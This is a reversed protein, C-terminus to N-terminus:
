YSLPLATMMDIFPGPNLEWSPMKDVFIQNFMLWIPNFVKSDYLGRGNHIVDGEIFIIKSIYETSSCLSMMM